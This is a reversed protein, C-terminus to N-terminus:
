HHEELPKAMKEHMTAKLVGPTVNALMGELKTKASAAYVHDEGALLADIGQRAVDRPQSESKGKSGVETNDMGARHFFNTDTPGPQLATVTVGTDKLEYRLSHAFSLVFGKTAAYVAERPAVMEGAISATLLIKGKGRAVMDRVIYKSLQVTGVCNLNVMNLEADLDTEIFLGGVGVGANICAVDIKRGLSSIQEWLQRVGNTTALDARLVVIDLGNKRLDAATIDLQESASNIILDYGRAALEEALSRGIGSSAGTVLALKRSM